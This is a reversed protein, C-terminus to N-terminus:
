RRWTMPRRPKRRSGDGASVDLVGATRAVSVPHQCINPDFTVTIDPTEYVQLHKGHRAGPGLKSPM